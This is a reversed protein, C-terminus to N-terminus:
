VGAENETNVQFKQKKYLQKNISDKGSNVVQKLVFSITLLFQNLREFDFLIFLKSIFHFCFLLAHQMRQEAAKM